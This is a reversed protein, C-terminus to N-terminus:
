APTFPEIIVGDQEVHAVSGTWGYVAIGGDQVSVEFRGEEPGHAVVDVGRGPAVEYVEGWPELVL